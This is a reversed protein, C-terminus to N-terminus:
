ETSSPAKRRRSVTVFGFGLALLVAAGIVLGAVDAGTFALGSSSSSTSTPTTAPAAGQVITVTETNTVSGGGAAAGTGAITNAGFVAPIPTGGNVALHPDTVSATFTVCGKSDAILVPGDASGNVVFTVSAGPAFNCWSGGFTAGVTETVSGTIPGPYGAAGAVGQFGLVGITLTGAVIGLWRLPRV